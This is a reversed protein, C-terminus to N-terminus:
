NLTITDAYDANIALQADDTLATLAEDMTDYWVM